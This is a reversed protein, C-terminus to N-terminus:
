DIDIGDIGNGVGLGRGLDLDFMCSGGARGKFCILSPYM